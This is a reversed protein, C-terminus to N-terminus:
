GILVGRLRHEGDPRRLGRGGRHPHASRRRAHPGQSSHRGRRLRVPPYGGARIHVVPGHPNNLLAYGGGAGVFIQDIFTFDVVATGGVIGGIAPIFGASGGYISLQPQAYVGILDNIQVGMRGDLGGMGLTLGAGILAGGGGSIGGRFRVGDDDSGESSVEAPPEPAAAGAPAEEGEQAAAHSSMFLMVGTVPLLVLASKLNAM